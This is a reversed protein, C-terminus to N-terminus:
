MIYHRLRSVYLLPTACVIQHHIGAADLDALRTPVDWCARTVPRFDKEGKMLM